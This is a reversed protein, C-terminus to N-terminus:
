AVEPAEEQDHTVFVSTIHMDDDGCAACNMCRGQNWAGSPSTSPLVKPEALWALAIRQRQGAPFSRRTATALWDLSSSVSCNWSGASSRPRPRVNRARNVRLGFAVNEFVTM